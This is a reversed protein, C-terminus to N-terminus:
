FINSPCCGSLVGTSIRGTASFAWLLFNNRSAISCFNFGIIMSFTRNGGHNWARDWGSLGNTTSNSLLESLKPIHDNHLDVKTALPLVKMSCLFSKKPERFLLLSAVFSISSGYFFLFFGHELFFFSINFMVLVHVLFDWACRRNRHVFFWCCSDTWTLKHTIHLPKHRHKWFGKKFHM